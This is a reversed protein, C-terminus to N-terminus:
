SRAIMGSARLVLVVEGAHVLAGPRAEVRAVIGAVPAVIATEMKMTELVLLREGQRIPQGPGVLVQWM